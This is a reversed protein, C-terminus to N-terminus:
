MATQTAPASIPSSGRQRDAAPGVVRGALEALDRACAREDNDPGVELLRALRREVQDFPLMTTAEEETLQRVRRHTM